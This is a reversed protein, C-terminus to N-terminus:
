FKYVYRAGFFTSNQKPYTVIMTGDSTTGFIFPSGDAFQWSWDDTKWREHIMDFRLGSKRDLTYEAFVSLRTVTNKIDELPGM